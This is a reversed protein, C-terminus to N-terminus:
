AVTFQEIVWDESRAGAEWERWSQLRKVADIYARARPSVPLAYAEFRQAVPAFMADAACFAGFLFPGGQGFRARADAWACEIRAIDALLKESAAIPSPSRRFNMPCEKRLAVFGSHMECSLSRAAARAARGPPWIAKEPFSEALYEIIALSDWVCLGDHDLSPAKGAPSRVLLEAKSKERYLPTVEEEFPIAFEKMVMWPRMSWSSYVKNGINLKLCM